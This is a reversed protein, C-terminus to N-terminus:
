SAEPFSCGPERLLGARDGVELEHFGSSIEGLPQSISVVVDIRHACTPVAVTETTARVAVSQYSRRLTVGYTQPAKRAHLGQSRPRPPTRSSRIGRRPRCHTHNPHRDGGRTHMTKSRPKRSRSSWTRRENDAVM